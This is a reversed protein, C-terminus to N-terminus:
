ELALLVEVRRLFVFAGRIVVAIVVLGGRCAVGGDNRVPFLLLGQGAIRLGGQVQLGDVARQFERLGKGGMRFTRLNQGFGGGFQVGRFIIQAGDGRGFGQKGLLRGDVEAFCRM